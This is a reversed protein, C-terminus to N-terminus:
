SRVSRGEGRGFSGRDTYENYDSAGSPPIRTGNVSFCLKFSSTPLGSRVKLHVKVGKQIFHEENKYIADFLSSGKWTGLMTGDKPATRLALALKDYDDRLDLKDLLQGVNVPPVSDEVAAIAECAWGEGVEFGDYKIAYEDRVKLDDVGDYSLARGLGPVDLPLQVCHPLDTGEPKEHTAALLTQWWSTERKWVSRELPGRAMGVEECEEHTLVKYKCSGKALSSHEGMSDKSRWTRNGTVAKYARRGLAGLDLYKFNPAYDCSLGPFPLDKSMSGDSEQLRCDYIRESGERRKFTACPKPVCSCTTSMAAEVSSYLFMAAMEFPTDPFAAAATMLGPMLEPQFLGITFPIAYCLANGAAFIGVNVAIIREVHPVAACKCTTGPPCPRGEDKLKCSDERKRLLNCTGKGKSVCRDKLLGNMFTDLATTKEEVYQQCQSLASDSSPQMMSASLTNRAADLEAIDSSKDLINLAEVVKADTMGALEDIRMAWEKM